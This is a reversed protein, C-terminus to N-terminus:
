LIQKNKMFMNLREKLIDEIGPVLSILTIGLDPEEICLNVDVVNPYIAWVEHVPLIYRLSKDNGIGSAKKYCNTKIDHKYSLLQRNCSRKDQIQLYKNTEDWFSRLRRYKFDIVLSGKFEDIEGDDNYTYFNLVCDPRNHRGITYLPHFKKDTANEDMPIVRDYYLKIIFKKSSDRFILEDASELKNIKLGNDTQLANDANELQFGLDGLAKAVKIFAWYEYLMSTRKWLLTFQRESDYDNAIKRLDSYLKYIVNYRPDSFSQSSIREELSEKVNQFWNASLLMKIMIQMKKISDCYERLTNIARTKRIYEPTKTENKSFPNEVDNKMVSIDITAESLCETILENLKRLIKKLFRNASLDYSLTKTINYSKSSRQGYSSNLKVTKADSRVIQNNIAALEYKKVIKNHPNKMIDQLAAIVKNFCNNLVIMKWLMNPTVENCTFERARKKIYAYNVAQTPINELVDQLMIEWINRDDIANPLVEFGTYYEISDVIVTLVYLGPPLPFNEHNFVEVWGSNAMLYIGDDISVLQDNDIGDFGDMELRINQNHRKSTLQMNLFSSERVRIQPKHQYKLDLITPYFDNVTVSTASGATYIKLEFPLNALTAM